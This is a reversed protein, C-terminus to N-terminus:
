PEVLEQLEAGLSHVVPQETRFINHVLFRNRLAEMGVPGPTVNPPQQHRLAASAPGRLLNKFPERRPPKGYSRYCVHM